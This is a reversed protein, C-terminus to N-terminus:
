RPDEEVFREDTHGNIRFGTVIFRGEGCRHPENDEEGKARLFMQKRNGDCTYDGMDWQYLFGGLQDHASMTEDRFPHDAGSEFTREITVEEDKETDLLDVECEYRDQGTQWSM